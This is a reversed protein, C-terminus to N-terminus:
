VFKVKGVNIYINRLKHIIISHAYNLIYGFCFLSLPVNTLKGNQNMARDTLRGYRYLM